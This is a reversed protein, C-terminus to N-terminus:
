DNLGLLDLIWTDELYFVDTKNTAFNRKRVHWFDWKNFRYKKGKCEQNKGSRVKLRMSLNEKLMFILYKKNILQDYM